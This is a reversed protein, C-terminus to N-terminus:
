VVLIFVLSIQDLKLTTISVFRERVSRCGRWLTEFGEPSLTSSLLHLLASEILVAICLRCAAVLRKRKAWVCCSLVTTVLNKGNQLMITYDSFCSVLLLSEKFGFVSQCWWEAFFFFFLFFFSTTMLSYEAADFMVRNYMGNFTSQFTCVITSKSTSCQAVRQLFKNFKIFRKSLLENAYSYLILNESDVSKMVRVIIFQENWDIYAVTDGREGGWGLRPCSNWAM